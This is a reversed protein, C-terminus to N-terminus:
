LCDVSTNGAPIQVKNICTPGSIAEIFSYALNERVSDLM